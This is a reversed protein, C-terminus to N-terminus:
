FPLVILRCIEDTGSSAAELAIRALNTLLPQFLSTNLINRVLADNRRGLKCVQQLVARYLQTSLIPHHESGNLVPIGPRCKTRLNSLNSELQVDIEWSDLM